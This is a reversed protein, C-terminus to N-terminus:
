PGCSSGFQSLLSTLDTLDVVGDQNTDGIVSGPVGSTGFASLLMALDTLDVLCDGSVDGAECGPEPCPFVGLIVREILRFGIGSRIIRITAGTVPNIERVSNSNTKLLNGNELECIGRGLSTIPILATLNGALDFETIRNGNYAINLFRGTSPRFTVQEPFAIAFLPAVQNGAADYRFVTHSGIDSVVVDGGFLFVDFPDVEGGIFNPLRAGTPSYRAVGRDSPAVTSAYCVLLDPGSFQIGRPNDLGSAAGCFVDVFAGSQDYRVVADKLQDSVYILGDPGVVANIPMDLSGASGPDSDVILDGQYSGDFSSYLGVADTVSDPILLVVQASLEAALALAAISASLKRSVAEM